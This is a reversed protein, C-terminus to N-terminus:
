GVLRDIIGLKIHSLLWAVVVIGGAAMWKWQLIKQIEQDEKKNHENITKKLDRIEDMIRRETLEVKDSLERSITSIRSHIEKVDQNKEKEKEQM